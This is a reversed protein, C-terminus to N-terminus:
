PTVAPLQGIIVLAYEGTTRFDFSAFSIDLGERLGPAVLLGADFRTGVIPVGDVFTFSSDRFSPVDSMCTSRGADDCALLTGDELRTQIVPDVRSNQARVMYVLVPSSAALAGNMLTITDVDRDGGIQLGEIVLAYRGTLRYAAGIVLNISGMDEVGTINLRAAANSDGEPVTLTMDNPLSLTDGGMFRGDRSCDNLNLSPIYLRIVPQLGDFGYVSIRYHDTQGPDDGFDVSVINVAEFDQCQFVAQEMPDLTPIQPNANRVQLVYDGTTTGFENDVRTAVITYIGAEVVTWEVSVSGNVEGAISTALTDSGPDLIAVLPALGNSATMDAVITDGANAQIRWTDFFAGQTITQNVTEDYTIPFNGPADLTPTADQAYVPAIMVLFISLFLLIKMRM